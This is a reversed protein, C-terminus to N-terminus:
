IYVIGIITEELLTGRRTNCLIKIDSVFEKPIVITGKVMPEEYYAVDGKDPANIATDIIIEKGKNRLKCKYPV